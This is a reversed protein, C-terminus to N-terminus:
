DFNNVRKAKVLPLITSKAFTTWKAVFTTKIIFENMAHVKEKLYSCTTIFHWVSYLLAINICISNRQILVIADAYIVLLSYLFPFVCKLLKKCNFVKPANAMNWLVLYYKPWYLIVGVYKMPCFTKERSKNTVNILRLYLNHIEACLVYWAFGESTNQLSLYPSFFNTARIQITYCSFIENIQSM